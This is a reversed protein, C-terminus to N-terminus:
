TIYNTTFLFLMICFFVNHYFFYNFLSNAKTTSESPNPECPRKCPIFIFGIENGEKFLDYMNQVKPNTREVIDPYIASRVVGLYYCCFTLICAYNGWMMLRYSLVTLTDKQTSHGM